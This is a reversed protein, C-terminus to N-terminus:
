FLFVSSNTRPFQHSAVNKKHSRSSDEYGCICLWRASFCSVCGIRRRSERKRCGALEVRRRSNFDGFIQSEKHLASLTRVAAPSSRNGHPLRTNMACPRSLLWSASQGRNMRFICKVFSPGTNRPCSHRRSLLRQGTEDWM